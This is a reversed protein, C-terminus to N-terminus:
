VTVLEGMCGLIKHIVRDISWDFMGRPAVLTAGDPRTVM